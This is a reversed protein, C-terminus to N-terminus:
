CLRLPRYLLCVGLTTQACTLRQPMCATISLFRLLFRSSSNSMPSHAPIIVDSINQFRSCLGFVAPKIDQRFLLNLLRLGLEPACIFLEREIGDKEPEDTRWDPLPTFTLTAKARLM